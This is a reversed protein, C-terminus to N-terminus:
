EDDDRKLDFMVGMMSYGLGFLVVAAMMGFLFGESFDRDIM